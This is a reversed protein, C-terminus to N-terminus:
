APGKALTVTAQRTVGAGDTWTIEVEDGPQHGHLRASLGDQSEVRQGGVATIV